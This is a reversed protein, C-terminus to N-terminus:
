VFGGPTNKEQLLPGKPARSFFGEPPKEKGSPSRYNLPGTTATEPFNTAGGIFTPKFFRTLAWSKKESNPPTLTGLNKLM